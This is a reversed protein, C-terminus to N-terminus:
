LGAVAPFPLASPELSTQAALALSRRPAPWRRLGVCCPACRQSPFHHPFPSYVTNLKSTVACFLRTFAMDLLERIAHMDWIHKWSWAGWGSHLVMVTVMDVPPLIQFCFQEEGPPPLSGRPCCLLPPPLGALPVSCLRVSGQRRIRVGRPRSATGCLARREPCISPATCM